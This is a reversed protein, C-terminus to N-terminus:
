LVPRPTCPQKKCVLSFTGNIPMVEAPSGKVDVTRMITWAAQGTAPPFYSGSVVFAPLPAVYYTAWMTEAYPEVEINVSSIGSDVVRRLGAIDSTVYPWDNDWMKVDSRLCALVALGSLGLAVPITLSARAPYATTAARLLVVVAVVVAVILVPQFFTIWKWQQYSIGREAFMIRYSILVALGAVLPFLALTHRRRWGIVTAVALLAIVLSGEAFWQTASPMSLDVAGFTVRRTADVMGKFPSIGVIEFPTMLSLRWGANASGLRDARSVLSGLVPAVAIASAAMAVLATVATRGPLGAIWSRPSGSGPEIRTLVAIGSIVVFTGAAMHPYSIVLPVLVLAAPIAAFLADSLTRSGATLLVALLALAGAMAMVQALYTHGVIYTISPPVMVPLALVAIIMPGARVLATLTWAAAIVLMVLALAMAPTLATAVDTGNVIAMSALFSRIGAADDRGFSGLAGTSVWGVDHHSNDVYHESIVAYSSGDANGYWMAAPQDGGLGKAMILSAFLSAGLVIIAAAALGSRTFAPVLSRWRPRFWLVLLLSGSFWLVGLMVLGVRMGGSGLELWYWGFVEVIALGFFPAAFWGNVRRRVPGIAAWPLWGLLGLAVLAVGVMVVLRLVAM